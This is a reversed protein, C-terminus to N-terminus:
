FWGELANVLSQIPQFSNASTSASDGNGGIENAFHFQVDVVDVAGNGNYDFQAEYEDLTPDDLNAFLAQSDVEDVQGDGNVDEYTGDGDTDIPQGAFQPDLKPPAVRITTTADDDDTFVGHAYEGLEIGEPVTPTFTVTTSDGADLTVEETAVTEDATLDGDGNLDLRFAVTKTASEDGENTVEVSVDITEGPAASAPAQLNSVEFSAPTPPSEITIQATESDDETAVGHTLTGVPLGSTDIDEFTVTTSEGGALEVDQSVVASEDSIDGDGDADVRFEVTKTATEDGTNAVDASVDILDGQTASGPAQLNSVQFNAATPLSEITIQATASDDPTAVGHTYTGPALGSTDVDTFSVTTSEGGALEIDQSVVASEDSIDGDGDADLRFEVTKTATEDGDNTVEASIDILDGQTASGPAGLNSVQFDAPDPEPTPDDGEVTLTAGTTGTVDYGTGAEDFVLVGDNGAAAGLSIDTEGAAQGELTVEVIPVSGTDATDRFAYEVDASSGDSAINVAESGSGLVTVDTIQAVSPDDVALGVEAAGVGGDADDVVVTFTTEEGVDVSGTEPDLSLTTTKDPQTNPEEVTLQATASDDETVVGHTYTAPPLASTDIDEFTVTTSESGALEVDQSLVVDDDNGLGDGAVDLRFEVTKTATEDGDNTVEASVDILDGQTASGPAGLNSVQFNAPDPEPTPEDGEVTLTAGTTGTVDYGTGAEDFVLVGDNGAAAGLSVDTEGAAQGELTVEVIPVSGTDATDRFAYEVDASSGDSAIDINDVGSGLVTVDTIQAVSPDDVVLGVEAAGVGGDADDVVVTFTTEEGVDVSEAGPDLSVTTGGAALAVPAFVSSLVLAVAVLVVPLKRTQLEITTM